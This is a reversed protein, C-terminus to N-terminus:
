KEQLLIPNEASVEDATLMLSEFSVLTIILQNSNSTVPLSFQGNEDTLVSIDTGSLKVLVGTLSEGTAADVIVGQLQCASPEPVGNSAFSPSCWALAFVVLLNVILKM